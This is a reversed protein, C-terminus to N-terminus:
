GIIYKFRRGDEPDNVRIILDHGIKNKYEQNIEKILQARRYRLTEPPKIHTIDLIDDLTEASITQYQFTILAPILKNEWITNSTKNKVLKRKKRFFWFIFVLILFVPLAYFIRFQNVNSKHKVFYQLQNKIDYTDRVTWNQNIKIITDQRLLIIDRQDWISYALSKFPNLNTTHVEKSKKHIIYIPKSLILYYNDLDLTQIRIRSKFIELGLNIAPLNNVTKNQFDIFQHNEGILHLGKEDVYALEDKLNETFKLLEWEGSAPTFHIVHGHSKWFGYGRYSYINDRYIFKYSDFNYGFYVGKYLNNWQKDVWKYVNFHGDPFMYKDNGIELVNCYYLNFNGKMLDARVKLFEKHMNKIEGSDTKKGTDRFIFQSEASNWFFFIIFILLKHNM